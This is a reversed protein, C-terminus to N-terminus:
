AQPPPVSSTPAHAACAGTAGPLRYRNAAIWRYLRRSVLSIGPATIVWGPIVWVGGANRLAAAIAAHGSAIEGTPAVWQAAEIVEAETLGFPALDTQQWSVIDADLRLKRLQEATRSCFGCDGDYIFTARGARPDM